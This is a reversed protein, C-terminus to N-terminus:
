NRKIHAPTLDVIDEAQMVILYQPSPLRAEYHSSSKKESRINKILRKSIRGIVREEWSKIVHDKIKEREIIHAKGKITYGRFHHEDVATISITSNQQLNKFTNARYLDILYIKGQEEIGVIGKASCHIRGKADITSVIVLGQKELFHVIKASLAKM